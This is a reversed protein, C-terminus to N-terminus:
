KRKVELPYSKKEKQKFHYARIKKKKFDMEGKQPGCRPVAVWEKEELAQYLLPTVDPEISRPM